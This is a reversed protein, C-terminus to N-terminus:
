KTSMLKNYFVVVLSGKRKEKRKKQKGKGLMYINANLIRIGSIADGELTLGSVYSILSEESGTMIRSSIQCQPGGKKIFIQM